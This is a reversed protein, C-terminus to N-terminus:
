SEGRFLDLDQQLEAVTGSLPPPANRLRDQLRLFAWGGIGLYAATVVSLAAVRYSDWFVVVVLAGLMVLGVGLFLVCLAALRVLEKQRQSEEKLEVAVLELRIRALALVHAGLARLSRRPGSGSDAAM